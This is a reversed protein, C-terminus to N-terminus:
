FIALQNELAKRKNMEFNWGSKLKSVLYLAPAINVFRCVLWYFLIAIATQALATSLLVHKKFMNCFVGVNASRTLPIEFDFRFRGVQKFKLVYAFRFLYSTM